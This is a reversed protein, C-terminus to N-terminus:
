NIYSGELEVVGQVVGLHNDDDVYGAGVDYGNTAGGGLYEDEINVQEKTRNGDRCAGLCGPRAPQEMEWHPQASELKDVM